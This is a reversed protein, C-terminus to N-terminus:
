HFCQRCLLHAVRLIKEELTVVVGFGAYKEARFSVKQVWHIGTKAYVLYRESLAYPIKSKIIDELKDESSVIKTKRIISVIDDGGLM